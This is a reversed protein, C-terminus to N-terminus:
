AKKAWNECYSGFPKFNGVPAGFQVHWTSPIFGIYVEERSMTTNLGAEMGRSAVTGEGLM